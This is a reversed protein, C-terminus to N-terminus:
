NDVVIVEGAVAVADTVLGNELAGMHVTHGTRVALRRMVPRGIRALVRGEDAQRVLSFFEQGATYLGGGTKSILGQHELAAAIRYATSIPLGLHKAIEPLPAGGDARIVAKLLAM